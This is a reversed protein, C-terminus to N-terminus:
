VLQVADGRTGAPRRAGPGPRSKATRIRPAETRPSVVPEKGGLRLEVGWVGAHGRCVARGQTVRESSCTVLHPRCRRRWAGCPDVHGLVVVGKALRHEPSSPIRDRRDESPDSACPATRNRRPPICRLASSTPSPWPMWAGDDGDDGRACVAPQARSIGGGRAHPASLGRHHM